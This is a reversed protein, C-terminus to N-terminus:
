SFALDIIVLIAPKIFLFRFGCLYVILLNNVHDKNLYSLGRVVGEKGKKESRNLVIWFGGSSRRFGVGPGPDVATWEKAGIRRPEIRCCIGRRHAPFPSFVSPPTSAPDTPLPSDPFYSHPSHWFLLCTPITWSPTAPWFYTILLLKYIEQLLVNSLPIWNLFLFKDLELLRQFRFFWIIGFESWFSIFTLKKIWSFM